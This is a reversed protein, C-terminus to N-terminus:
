LSLNSDRIRFSELGDIKAMKNMFKSVHKKNDTINLDYALKIVQTCTLGFDMKSSVSSYTNLLDDDEVKYVLCSWFKAQFIRCSRSKLTQANVGYKVAIKGFSLKLEMVNSKASSSAKENVHIWIITTPSFDYCRPLFVNRIVCVFKSRRNSYFKVLRYRSIFFVRM